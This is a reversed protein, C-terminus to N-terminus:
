WACLAYAVATVTGSTGDNDAGAQWSTNGSTPQSLELRGKAGTAGSYTARAGGGILVENSKCDAVAQSYGGPGVVAGVDTRVKVRIPDSTVRGVSANASSGHLAKRAVHGLPTVGFLAIVLAAMSLILPLRRSM